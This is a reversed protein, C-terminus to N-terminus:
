ADLRIHSVYCSQSVQFRLEANKTMALAAMALSLLSKVGEATVGAYGNKVYLAKGENDCASAHVKQDTYLIFGGDPLGYVNTIKIVPSYEVSLAASLGM